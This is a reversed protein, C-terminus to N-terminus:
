WKLRWVLQILRSQNDGLLNTLRYNDVRTAGLSNTVPISSTVPGNPTTINTSTFGLPVGGTSAPNFYPDNL